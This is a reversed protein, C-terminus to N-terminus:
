PREDVHEGAGMSARAAVILRAAGSCFVFTHLAPHVVARVRRDFVDALQEGAMQM